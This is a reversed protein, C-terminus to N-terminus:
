MKVDGIHDVLGYELAQEATFYNDRETDASVKEYTKGTAESLLKNLTRKTREVHSATIAIDTAQGAMGSLIPQHLMLVSHPLCYRKGHTGGCVVLFAAMSAAMGAAVTIVDCHLAKITDFIYLGSAVCGGGSSIYLTIDENSDAALCRLASCVANACDENIEGTISIIRRAYEVDATTRVVNHGNVNDIRTAYHKM